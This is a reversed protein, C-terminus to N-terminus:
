QTKFDRAARPGFRSRLHGRLEKAAVLDSCEDAEGVRALADDLRSMGLEPYNLRVAVEAATVAIRLGLMPVDQSDALAAADALLMAAKNAAGADARLILDALLRLVEPMWFRLGLSEFQDRARALAAIAHDYQGARAMAEAFLCEYIPFDELTGIERERALGEQLMRLGSSTDDLMSVAWGRYILGKARHDSMGHETTFDVLDNALRLVTQHDRRESRHLLQTDMAHVRTGLHELRRSLAICQQEVRLGSLPHGRMWHVQALAGLACIKPDHNGYLRCHHLFDGQDYIQLGANIHDCCRKFDGLDYHTAWNCHHAQLLLEADGRTEARCLLAGARQKKVAFDRHVRWWGWYIPFRSSSEPLAECLSYAEGYLEQAETSAPGHLAILAPGLLTYFEVRLTLADPDQQMKVLGAMGRRLLRTAETLASRALSRRAADLWYPASEKCEGGETLHLALLEPQRSICQPDALALARAVSLHTQQRDTRLLSNYAADCILAHGFRYAQGNPAEERVLLGSELLVALSEALEDPTSDVVEALVDHRVSRGIVAAIQAIQKSPGCRDLRAMLTERLSAPIARLSEDTLSGFDHSPRLHLLSRAVEEVFLPVGDTKQAITRGLETPVPAGDGMVSQIMDAVDDASLPALRLTSIGGRTDQMQEDERSTLLLLTSRGTISRVLRDLLDLSTPDFWHLDEFIICTQRRPDGLLIQGALARLLRERLVRPPATQAQINDCTIGLLEALLPAVAAHAATDEGLLSRVKELQDGLTDDDNLHIAARLYTIVPHLPSDRDLASAALRVMHVDDNLHLSVFHEVLRSKGIGADGVILVASGDGDQACRWHRSLAAIEADRGFFPTLRMTHRDPRADFRQTLEGIVQWTHHPEGFGRVVRTGLDNFRFLSAVRIHTDDAIIIGGPPAFSQLRAALNPTTGIVSRRDAGGGAFLDSVIVQGTAIGIRVSLMGDMPASTTGILRTIELAARVSREPDNENAVPYCFYALIGDGLFRSIHGGYRMIVNGCVERYERILELLDEADLQEAIASSNVLDVFMVTMPRREARTARFIPRLIQTPSQTHDSLNLALLARRFRAREGITLGLERLDEDTLDRIEDLTIKQKRFVEIREGLGIEKLWREV